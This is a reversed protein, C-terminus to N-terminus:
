AAAEDREPGVGLLRLPRRRLLPDRLSLTAPGRGEGRGARDRGDLPAADGTADGRSSGQPQKRQHLDGLLVATERRHRRDPSWSPVEPARPSSQHLQFLRRRTRPEGGEHSTRKERPLCTIRAPSVDEVHFVRKRPPPEEEAHSAGRGRPLNRKRMPPEEEAHSNKRLALLAEDAGSPVENSHFTRGMRPLSKKRTSARRESHSTRGWADSGRRVRIFLEGRPIFLRGSPYFLRGISHPGRERPHPGEWESSTRGVRIV